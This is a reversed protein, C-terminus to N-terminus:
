NKLAFKANYVKVHYFHGWWWFKKRPAATPSFSHAHLAAAGRAGGM